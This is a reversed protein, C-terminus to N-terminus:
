KENGDIIDIMDINFKSKLADRSPLIIQQSFHLVLSESLQLISQPTKGEVFLRAVISRLVAGLAMIVLNPNHGILSNIIKQHIERVEQHEQDSIDM